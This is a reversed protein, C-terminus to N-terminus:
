GVRCLNMVHIGDGEDEDDYKKDEWRVYAFSSGDACWRDVAAGVNNYHSIGTVRGIKQRLTARNTGHNRETFFHDSYVVTIGAIATDQTLHPRTAPLKVGKEALVAAFVLVKEHETGKFGEALNRLESADGQELAAEITAQITRENERITAQAQEILDRAACIAAVRQEAGRRRVDEFHRRAVDVWFEDSHGVYAGDILRITDGYREIREGDYSVTVEGQTVSQRHHTIEVKSADFATM